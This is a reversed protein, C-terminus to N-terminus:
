VQPSTSQETQKVVSWSHYDSQTSSQANGEEIHDCITRLRKVIDEPTRGRLQATFLFSTKGEVLEKVVAADDEFHGDIHWSKINQTDEGENGMYAKGSRYNYIGVPHGNPLLVNWEADRDKGNGELPEGFLEVLRNYPADLYGLRQADVLLPTKRRFVTYDM